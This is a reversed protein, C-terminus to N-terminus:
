SLVTWVEPHAGVAVICYRLAFGGVLVGAASILSFPALPRRGVLVWTELVLPLVIGLAVVAGYFAVAMDGAALARAAGQVVDHPSAFSGAVLTVLVFAEVTLLAVDLRSVRALVTRFSAMSGSLCACAIVVVCGCSLASVAFLLPLWANAWFPVAPMSSLLLGTYVAVVSGLALAAWHLIFVARRRLGGSPVGWAVALLVAVVLLAALAFAGVTLFTPTPYVFLLQARDAIGLDTVLCLVGTALLLASVGFAPAMLRRFANPVQFVKVTRRGTAAVREVSVRGRPALLGLAALVVCAGAGAGGCFLYGIVFDSFM